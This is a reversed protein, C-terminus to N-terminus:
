KPERLALSLPVFATKHDDFFKEYEVLESDKHYFAYPVIQSGYEKVLELFDPNNDNVTDYDPSIFLMNQINTHSNDNMIHISLGYQNVIDGYKVLFLDESGTELTVYSTLDFCHQENPQCKTLKKYDYNVTKDVMLIVKGMIDSLKTEKTVPRVHLKPRLDVEVVKAVEKYVSPDNSKIRLNIFLPDESNPCGIATFANTMITNFVRDLLISNETDLTTNAEDTSAGVCPKGDILYVEFDLVRCGRSIVYKVMDTNIYRGTYASNYSSKICYEKLPLNYAKVNTNQIKVDGETKLSAIETEPSSFFTIGEKKAMSLIESRRKLLKWLVYSM